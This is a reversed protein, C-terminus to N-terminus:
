NTVSAMLLKKNINQFVSSTKSGLEFVTKKGKMNKSNILEDRRRGRGRDFGTFLDDTNKASTNLTYILSVKHAHSIDELHKGSSTTLQFNSLLLM